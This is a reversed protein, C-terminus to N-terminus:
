FTCVIIKKINIKYYLFHFCLLLLLSLFTMNLYIKLYESAILSTTDIGTINVPPIVSASAASFNSDELLASRTPTPLAIKLSENHALFDISLM